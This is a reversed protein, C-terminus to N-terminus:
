DSLLDTGNFISSASKLLLLAFVLNFVFPLITILVLNFDFAFAAVGALIGSPILMMLLLLMRLMQEVAANNRSKMIRYSIMTGSIITLSVGLLNLAVPMIELLKMKFGFLCFLMILLIIMLAKVLYPLACAIGKKFSSDPILYIQYNKIEAELSFDNMIFFVCMFSMSLFYASGMGMFLSMVFFILVMIVSQLPFLNKSRKMILLNKSLIAFAGPRFHTPQDDNIKVKDVIREGRKLRAYNQTFNVAEDYAKECFDDKINIFYIFAILMCALTLLFALLVFTMNGTLFSTLALKMWGFLPVFHILPNRIFTTMARGFDFGVEFLNVLYLLVLFAIFAILIFKRIWKNKASRIELIHLIDVLLMFFMFFVFCYLYTFLLFPLTTNMIFAVLFYMPYLALMLSQLLTTMAIFSMIQRKTFPGTFMMYADTEKMLLQRKSALQSIILFASMGVVIMASVNPDAPQANTKLSVSMYILLIYFSSLLITLIASSPKSFLHRITAKLKIWQLKCIISMSNVRVPM